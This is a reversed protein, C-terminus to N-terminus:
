LTTLHHRLAPNLLYRAETLGADGYSNQPNWLMWGDSGFDGAMRIQAMLEDTDFRRHDIAYDKIAQLWPRFM